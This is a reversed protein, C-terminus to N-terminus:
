VWLVGEERDPSDYISTNDTGIVARGIAMIAAVMGDIKEASHKKDPRICDSPDRIAAINSANWRLIKHGGHVIEKGLVLRMLMKMPENMAKTGQGHELMKFGDEEALQGALTTANWPDFAIEQIAYQKGLAQIRHRIFRYDIRNGPTLELLGQRAWTRYPQREKREREEATDAPCWFFPLLVYREDIPFALVLAAMDGISALDLGAYCAKGLLTDHDVATNCADWKGMPMWRFAQETRINLHLRKFENEFEPEEKARQCERAIFEESISVGLNPNAKRWIKPDTWDDEREAKYVVPLFAMDEIVGSCVKEAYDQKENCISGEREYDSTSLHVLLPQRRSGMSTALVDTLERTRHVHLEDNVVLHANFGHKSGAEASIAKYSSDGVVISYKYLEARSNMEPENRIMGTVIDFCLRAQEREAAASYCEAGPEDDTYLVLAIVAAAMTTKANKRPIFIFAERYRRTGDPRIWGFLNAFIAKQWDELILTTKAKEGKVHSCCHEVFEIAFAARDEEFVCDGAQAYPDYNPLLRIIRQLDLNITATSM